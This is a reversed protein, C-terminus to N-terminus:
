DSAGIERYIRDAAALWEARLYIGIREATKLNLSIHQQEEFVQSLERPSAGNFLQGLSSALFLGVSKFDTRSMSMLIGRKVEESGLQSFTPINHRNAISVIQPISESNVGGQQTIYLADVNLALKEICSVVSEIAKQNDPIDSLTYCQVVEFQQEGAVREIVELATYARGDVSNEFAVGLRKFGIVDHFLRLQREYRLPSVRAFVHDYGSDEVSKIIGSGVPNSASIVFTPTQHQTNALDQGAWTGMAFILDIDKTKNLRTILTARLVERKNQQWDASYFADAAFELYKSETNRALWQWLSATELEEPLVPSELWGLAELGKITAVLYDHYNGDDGGEYYAIRWKTDPHKAPPTNAYGTAAEATNLGLWIALAIITGLQKIIKNTDM